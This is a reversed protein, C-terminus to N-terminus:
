SKMIGTIWNEAASMAYEASYDFLVISKVRKGKDYCIVIFGDEYVIRASRDEHEYTSNIIEHM